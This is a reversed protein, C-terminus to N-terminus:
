RDAPNKDLLERVKKEEWDLSFFGYRPLVSLGHVLVAFGWGVTPWIQWWQWWAAPTKKMLVMSGIWIVSMILVYMTLHRYFEALRKVRRRIYIERESMGPLIVEEDMTSLEIHIQLRLTPSALYGLFTRAIFHGNLAALPQRNVRITPANVGGYALERMLM